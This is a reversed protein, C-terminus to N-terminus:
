IAFLTGQLKEDIITILEDEKKSKEIYYLFTDINTNTFQNKNKIKETITFWYKELNQEYYDPLLLIGKMNSTTNNYIFEFLSKNIEAWFPPNGWIYKYKKELKDKTIDKHLVNLNLYDKCISYFDKNFELWVGNKIHQLIIWLGSWIELVEENETNLENVLKWIQEATKKPTFFEFNQVDMKKNIENHIDVLANSWLDKWTILWDKIARIVWIMKWSSNDMPYYYPKWRFDSYNCANQYNSLLTKKIDKFKWIYTPIIREKWNHIKKYYNDM